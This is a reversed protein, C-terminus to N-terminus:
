SKPRRYFGYLTLAVWAGELLIFGVQGTFVAAFLLLSGGWLNLHLYLLSHDSLRRTHLGFYGLLILIAGGTSAAQHVLAEM